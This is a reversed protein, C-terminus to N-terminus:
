GFSTGGSRHLRCRGRGGAARRQAPFRRSSRDSPTDAANIIWAAHRGPVLMGPWRFAGRAFHLLLRLNGAAANGDLDPWLQEILEERHLTQRPALALLKVISRAKRRKWAAQPLEHGDVTVRFGGLLSIV